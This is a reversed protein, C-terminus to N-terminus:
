EETLDSVVSSETSETSDTIIFEKEAHYRMHCEIAKQKKDVTKVTNCLWFDVGKEDISCEECRYKTQYPWRTKKIIKLGPCKKHICIPGSGTVVM